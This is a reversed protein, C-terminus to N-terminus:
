NSVSQNGSYTEWPLSPLVKLRKYMFHIATGLALYVACQLM